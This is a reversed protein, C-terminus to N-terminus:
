NHHALIPTHKKGPHRTDDKGAGKIFGPVNWRSKESVHVPLRKLRPTVPAPAAAASHVRVPHVHEARVEEGLERLAPHGAEIHPNQNKLNQDKSLPAKIIKIKKSNLTSIPHITGPTSLLTGPM